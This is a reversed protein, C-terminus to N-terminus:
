DPILGFFTRECWVARLREAFYDQRTYATVAMQGAGLATDVLLSTRDTLITVKSASRLQFQLSFDLSDL